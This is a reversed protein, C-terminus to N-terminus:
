CVVEFNAKIFKVSDGLAMTAAARVADPLGM